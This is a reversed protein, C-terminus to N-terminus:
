QNQKEFYKLLTFIINLVIRNQKMIQINNVNLKAIINGTVTNKMNLFANLKHINSYQYLTEYGKKWNNFVINRLTNNGNKM